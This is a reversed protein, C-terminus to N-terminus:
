DLGLAQEEGDSRKARAATKVVDMATPMAFRQRKDLIDQVTVIQVTDYTQGTFPNTYTGTTKAETIM